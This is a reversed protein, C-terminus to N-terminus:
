TYIYDETDRKKRESEQQKFGLVCEEMYLLDSLMKIIYLSKNM